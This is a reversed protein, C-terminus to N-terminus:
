GGRGMQLRLRLQETFLDGATHSDGIQPHPIQRGLQPVFTKSSPPLWAPVAAATTKWCCIPPSPRRCVSCLATLSVSWPKINAPKRHTTESSTKPRPPRSYTVFFVANSLCFATRQQRYPSLQAPYNNWTREEGTM